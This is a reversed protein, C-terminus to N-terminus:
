RLEQSAASLYDAGWARRLLAEAQALELLGAFYPLLLLPALLLLRREARPLLPELLLIAPPAALLLFRPLSQFAWVGGLCFYFGLAVGLWLRLPREEPKARWFAAAATGLYALGCAGIAAKRWPGGMLPPDLLGRVFAHLPADFLAGGFVERQVKLNILPDGFARWLWGQLGALALAPLALAPLWRADLRRRSGAILLVIVPVLFGSKQALAAAACAAGAAWPRDDLAALAAALAACLFVPEVFALSGTVLWMPPLFIFLIAALDPRRSFRGALRRFLLVASASAIASVALAAARYDPVIAAAARILLPYLPFWGTLYPGQGPVVYLAPLTHAIRLYVHGDYRLALDLAPVGLAKSGAALFAGRAALAAAALGAARIM